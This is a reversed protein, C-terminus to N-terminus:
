SSMSAYSDAFPQGERQKTLLQDPDVADIRATMQGALKRYRDAVASM